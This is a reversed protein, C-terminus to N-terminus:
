ESVEAPLIGRINYENFLVYIKDDTGKIGGDSTARYFLARKGPQIEKDQIQPGIAVITGITIKDLYAEELAKDTLIIGGATKTSEGSKKNQDEHYILVQANTLHLTSIDVAPMLSRITEDSLQSKRVTGNTQQNM